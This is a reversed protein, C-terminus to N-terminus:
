QAMKGKLQEVLESPTLPGRYNWPATWSLIIGGMTLIPIGLLSVTGGTFELDTGKLNVTGWLLFIGVAIM